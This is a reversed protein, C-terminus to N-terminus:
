PQDGGLGQKALHRETRRMRRKAEARRGRSWVLVRRCRPCAAHTDDRVRYPSTVVGRTGARYAALL